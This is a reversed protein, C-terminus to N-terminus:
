RLLFSSYSIQPLSAQRIKSTASYQDILLWNLTLWFSANIKLLNKRRSLIGFGNSYFCNLYILLLNCKWPGHPRSYNELGFITCARTSFTLVSPMSIFKWPIYRMHHTPLQLPPPPPHIVVHLICVFTFSVRPHLARRRLREHRVRRVRGDTKWRSFGWEGEEVMYRSPGM